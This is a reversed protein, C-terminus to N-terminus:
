RHGFIEFEGEDADGDDVDDLMDADSMDEEDEDESSEEEGATEVAVEEDGSQEFLDVDVSQVDADSRTRLKSGRRARPPVSGASTPRHHESGIEDEDQADLGRLYYRMPSFSRSLSDIMEYPSFRPMEVNPMNPLNQRMNQLNPLNPLDPMRTRRFEALDSLTPLNPMSPATFRGTAFSPRRTELDEDRVFYRGPSQAGSALRPSSPQNSPSEPTQLQSPNPVELASNAAFDANGDGGIGANQLVANGTFDHQRHGQQQQRFLREAETEHHATPAMQNTNYSDCRGCKLGLWHFPSWTRAGCDNCGIWVQRPRRQHQQAAGQSQDVSEPEPTGEIHPLLGELEEDDEPMPQAAIEDDLKRWQLEMNVASKSCVPCKYTVAMLDQYCTGHMYHGCPLSVVSTRSEFLVNLCLPCNGETAKEICPHAASTSISICVNCRKCHVFDKGLGEGVRCIGCDDCHYIRKNTDNDWLKCKSCYYWAAYEGCNMCTEAAPQPTQCLMCLMNQTKKRNLSHPFPLNHSQDHCHRCPFWCQCDFCQVKVNRKYHMCGLDPLDDEDEMTEDMDGDVDKPAKPLPSFVPDLDGPRLNYPNKPDIPMAAAGLLPTSGGEVDMGGSAASGAPSQPTPMQTHRVNYEHTMLAHMRKAKEETSIALLKIDQLKQRLSAMGDNEPLASDMNAMNVYEAPVHAQVAEDWQGINARTQAAPTTVASNPTTSTPSRLVETIQHAPNVSRGEDSWTRIPLLPPRIPPLPLPLPLQIAYNGGALENLVDVTDDTDGVHDWTSLSDGAHDSDPPPTTTHPTSSSLCHSTQELEDRSPSAHSLSPTTAQSSSVSAAEQAGSRESLAARVRPPVNANANERQVAFDIKQSSSESM